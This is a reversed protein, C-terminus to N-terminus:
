ARLERSLARADALSVGLVRHIFHDAGEERKCFEALADFFLSNFHSRAAAVYERPKPTEKFFTQAVTKYGKAFNTTSAMFVTMEGLHTKSLNRAQEYAQLARRITYPSIIHKDAEKRVRAIRAGVNGINALDPRLKAAHNESFLLAQAFQDAFDEGTEGDLDPALSHGLEHAMWFKFDVANSDLNLFVWTTQSDPLHINLANGHHLREGWLVPIIVAHLANFKEILDKFEIIEKKELGMEKRVQSAVDQAYQYAVTPDKLTPPRTLEQRPLYKVLRKLLEGTERAGDLHEDKTKRHAKKRFSVVPMATPPQRIVLQEFALGLLMGMRLLKDPQPFSEGTLWKSVAERSVKLKEALGSQNLGAKILADRLSSINLTNQVAPIHSFEAM